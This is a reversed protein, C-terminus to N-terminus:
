YDGDEDWPYSPASSTAAAGSAPQTENEAPQLERPALMLRWEGEEQFVLVGLRRPGRDKHRAAAREDVNFEAKGTVLYAPDPLHRSEVRVIADVHLSRLAHLMREFRSRSEPDTARAVLQRYGAYDGALCTELFHRMFGVIDPYSETLGPAFSYEPKQAPLAVTDGAPAAPAAPAKASKSEKRECGALGGAVLVMALVLATRLLM